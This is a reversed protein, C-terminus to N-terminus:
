RAALWLLSFLFAVGVSAVAILVPWGKPLWHVRESLALVGEIALLAIVLRDPTPRLWRGKRATDAM